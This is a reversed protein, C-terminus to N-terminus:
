QLTSRCLTNCLNVSALTEVRVSRNRAIQLLSNLSATTVVTELCGSTDADGAAWPM